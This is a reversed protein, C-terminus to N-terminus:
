SVAIICILDHYIHLRKTPRDMFAPMSVCIIIISCKTELSCTLSSFRDGIIMCINDSREYQLMPRNRFHAAIKSMTVMLYSWFQEICTVM